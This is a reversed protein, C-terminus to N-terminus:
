FNQYRKPFMDGRSDSVKFFGRALFHLPAWAKLSPSHTAVDWEAGTRASRIGLGLWLGAPSFDVDIGFQLLRQVVLRKQHRPLTPSAIAHCLRDSHRQM